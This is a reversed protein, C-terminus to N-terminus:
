HTNRCHCTVNFTGIAVVVLSTTLRYSITIILITHSVEFKFKLLIRFIPIGPCPDKGDMHILSFEAFGYIRALSGKLKKWLFIRIINSKNM